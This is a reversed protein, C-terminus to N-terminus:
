MIILLNSVVEPLGHDPRTDALHPQFLHISKRTEKIMKQGTDSGFSAKTWPREEQDIENQQRSM